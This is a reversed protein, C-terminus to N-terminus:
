EERPVDFFSGISPPNEEDSLAGGILGDRECEEEGFEEEFVRKVNAATFTEEEEDFGYESKARADGEGPGEYGEAREWVAWDDGSIALRWEPPKPLLADPMEFRPGLKVTLSHAVRAVYLDDEAALIKIPSSAVIKASKRLALLARITEALTRGSSEDDWRASAGRDSAAAESDDAAEDECGFAHPWFVCPIGPHTLAYAYGLGMRDTPFPWHMQPHGTDHNDLFTVARQPVWGLLGPPRGAPDRLRWYETHEIARQLIGKTPFDFAAAVGHVDAIWEALKARPGDQNYSLTAGEWNLDVWNEGVCFARQPTKRHGGGFTERAYEEVFEPAYGRVFDFRFGGFGIEDRLWAMWRKLTARLEPNQHDLDPAPAYNEGSDPSGKGGYHPDDCTIAWAGWSVKEGDPDLDAFVNYVGTEPDVFDATRHNVVVDCVPVVGADKLAKCLAVLSAKDGYASADLDFLKGPLYGEPSVSQSPPPLWAHTFGMAAIDSARAALCSWWSSARSRRAPDDSASPAASAAESREDAESSAGEAVVGRKSSTWDFAQLLVTHDFGPNAGRCADRVASPLIDAVAAGPVDGLAAVEAPDFPELVYDEGLRELENRDYTYRCVCAKSDADSPVAVHPPRHGAEGVHQLSSLDPRPPPPQKPSSPSPARGSRSAGSRGSTGSRSALERDIRTSVEDVVAARTLGAIQMQAIEEETFPRSSPAGRPAPEDAPADSPGPNEERPGTETTARPNGPNGPNAREDGYAVRAARAAAASDDEDDSGAWRDRYVPQNEDAVDGENEPDVVGPRSSREHLESARERVNGAAVVNSRADEAARRLLRESENLVEAAERGLRTAEERVAEGVEEPDPGPGARVAAVRSARRKPFGRPRSVLPSSRFSRSRASRSVGPLTAVPAARAAARPSSAFM